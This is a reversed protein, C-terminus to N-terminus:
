LRVCDSEGAPLWHRRATQNEAADPRRAGSRPEGFDKSKGLTEVYTAATGLSKRAFSPVLRRFEMCADLWKTAGWKGKM